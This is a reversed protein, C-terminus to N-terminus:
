LTPSKLGCIPPHSQGCVSLTKFDSGVDPQFPTIAVGDGKNPFTLKLEADYERENAVKRHVTFLMDTTKGTGSPAVWDGAMLDFGVPEDEKPTKTEEKKAYMAIPNGIKKLVMTSSSNWLEPKYSTGLDHGRETQYCGDKTVRIGLSYSGTDLHSAIFVGNSDTFGEVKDWEKSQQAAPPLGYRVWVKANPVPQSSEDLIKLTIRWKNTSLAWENTSPTSQAFACGIATAVLIINLLTKM